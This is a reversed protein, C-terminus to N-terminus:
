GTTTYTGKVFHAVSTSVSHTGPLSKDYSVNPARSRPSKKTPKKTQEKKNEEQGAGPDADHRQGEEGNGEEEEEDEEDEGEDDVAIEMDLFHEDNDSDTWIYYM